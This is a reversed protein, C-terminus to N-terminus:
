LCSLKICIFLFSGYLVPTIVFFTFLLTFINNFLEDTKHISKAFFFICLVIFTLFVLLGLIVTTALAYGNSFDILIITKQALKYYLYCAGCIASFLLPGGFCFFMLRMVTIDYDCDKFTKM